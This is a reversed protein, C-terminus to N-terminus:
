RERFQVLDISDMGGERNELIGKLIIREDVDRDELHDGKRLNGWWFETYLDGREWIHHM